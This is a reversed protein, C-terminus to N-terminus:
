KQRHKNKGKRKARLAKRLNTAKREALHARASAKELKRILYLMDHRYHACVECDGDLTRHTAERIEQLVTPQSTRM